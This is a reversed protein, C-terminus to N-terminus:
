SLTGYGLECLFGMLLQSNPEGQIAAARLNTLSIRDSWTDEARIFSSICFFVILLFRM